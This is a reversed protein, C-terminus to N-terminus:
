PRLKTARSSLSLHPRHNQWSVLGPFLRAFSHSAGRPSPLAHGQVHQGRDAPDESRTSGRGTVSPHRCNRGVSGPLRNNGHKARPRKKAFVVQGDDGGGQNRLRGYTIRACGTNGQHGLKGRKNHNRHCNETQHMKARRSSHSQLENIKTDVTSQVCYAM